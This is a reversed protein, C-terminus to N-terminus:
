KLWGRIREAVAQPTFGFKEALLEGPASAGYHDIGIALGGEGVLKHWGYTIGAEISVKKAGQPIVNAKYAADQKEFLEVCPLSVVRASRGSAALIKAAEVAVWVESGTAMIVLDNVSAGQVVYGGKLIDDPSFGSERELPPLNQRTFLLTSPSNPQKLAAYYSMAVELGDAPRFVFLNPIARLASVHEIPQHTPGDEGVWFSDHTFIFISQLHSIAALRITPRMYDSFVLFTASYPLWDRGYALGNVIAGMAHERVGFRINRGAFDEAQIDSSDKILTKTSPELDASGGIFYPVRKAIEQIAKGSLNRTADKKPEKFADVLGQKLDEPIKRQRQAAFQASLERNGGSWADFKSQWAECEASRSKIIETCYEAVDKPVVFEGSETWGLKEKTLKLEDKGLPAGHVDATGAKNPSGYGITTRACIISPKGSEKIANEICRAVAAHDHGDVQQVHWNYGEFRKAVSETFCVKTPDALSIQNDDYLYVLNGLGLHGALSAAEAAVGEMLDGDSVIGFVRYNFLDASYRQALMKASLAMGVGNAFGQGLPGTTTEVGATMGFEPHGPTKSEWQRFNKLESIPLDYGFLHLLSYILMSGHGASLVFRDRNPWDTKSPNFRIFNAWLVSAMDAAGLPLGPHGSNAAEVGEISLVRVTLALRKLKAIDIEM